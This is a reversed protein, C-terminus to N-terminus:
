RTTVRATGRALMAAAVLAFCGTVILCVGAGFILFAGTAILSAGVVYFALIALLETM